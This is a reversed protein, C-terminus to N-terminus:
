VQGRSWPSNLISYDRTIIQPEPSVGIFVTLLGFNRYNGYNEVNGNLTAPVSEFAQCLRKLFIREFIFVEHKKSIIMILPQANFEMQKDKKKVKLSNIIAMINHFLQRQDRFRQKKTFCDTYLTSFILFMRKTSM